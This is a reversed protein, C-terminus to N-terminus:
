NTIINDVSILIEIKNHKDCNELGINKEPNM